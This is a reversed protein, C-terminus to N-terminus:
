MRVEPTQGGFFLVAPDIFATDEGTYVWVARAPADLIFIEADLVFATVRGLQYGPDAPPIAQAM